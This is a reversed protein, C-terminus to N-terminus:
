KIQQLISKDKVILLLSYSSVTLSLHNIHSQPAVRKKIASVLPSILFATIEKNTPENMPKKTSHDPTFINRRQFYGLSGDKPPLYKAIIMEPQPTTPIATLRRQSQIPPNQGDGKKNVM